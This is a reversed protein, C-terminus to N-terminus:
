HNIVNEMGTLWMDQPVLGYWAHNTVPDPEVVLAQRGPQCTFGSLKGAIDPTQVCATAAQM